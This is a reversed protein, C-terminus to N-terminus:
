CSAELVRVLKVLAEADFDTGVRVVHGSALVVEMSSRKASSAPTEVITVPILTPSPSPPRRAPEDLRNRWWRVRTEGLGHQRAFTASPLGSRRWAEVVVRGDEERWYSRRKLRALEISGNSSSM